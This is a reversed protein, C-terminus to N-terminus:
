ILCDKEILRYDTTLKQLVINALGLYTKNKSKSKDDYCENMDYSILRYKGDVYLRKIIEFFILTSGVKQLHFKISIQQVYDLAGSNLWKSLGLLEVGEIDLKLYFIKTITHGNTQLVSRLTDLKKIKNPKASVGLRGFSINNGRMPPHSVTSDLAFVKCGIDDMFEEFAWDQKIGVSYILCTGDIVENLLDDMCVFTAGVRYKCSPHYKGGFKQGHACAMNYPDMMEEHFKELLDTPSENKLDIQMFKEFRLKDLECIKKLYRKTRRDTEDSSRSIISKRQEIMRQYFSKPYDDKGIKSVRVNYLLTVLISSILMANQILLIIVTRTLLSM